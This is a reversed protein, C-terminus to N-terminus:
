DRRPMRDEFYPLLVCGVGYALVFISILFIAGLRRWNSQIKAIGESLDALIKHASNMRIATAFEEAREEMQKGSETPHGLDIFVREIIERMEHFYTHTIGGPFMEKESIVIEVKEEYSCNYGPLEPSLVRFSVEIGLTLGLQKLGEPKPFPSVPFHSCFEEALTEESPPWSSEHRSLVAECFALLPASHRDQNDQAM